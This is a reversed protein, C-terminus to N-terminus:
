LQNGRTSIHPDETLLLKSIQIGSPPNLQGRSELVCKQTKPIRLLEKM